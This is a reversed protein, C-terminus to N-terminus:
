FVGELTYDNAGGVIESIADMTPDVQDDNAGKPFKSFELLYDSLWEAQRPLFVSGAEITPTVDHARSVKDTGRNIGKIPIHEKKLTQILATGSSADEVKFARLASPGASKASHKKWFARAQVLLEPAEWKGRIQDILYASNERTYGWCQLVSFDNQEKTKSATDGFIIRHSLVPLTDYFKWWDSKFLGGGRPTPRQQLQGATGYTGLTRKLEKIQDQGFREPFMLEGEETRPDVWGIATRCRFKPEFEMPIRLHVYDLGMSLIVGTTDLENLRQMIVVIASKESNIRHPLTETFSLRAKELEAPSNADFASIPDDLMVRDGRSGTMGTFAMAERFGTSTNEFKNKANQDAMLAVPWREQYWASAILIRCKRNDRIALTASHATGLFRHFLLGKPGWEWAPWIVGVLMSKMTGPPVNMLLRPIEGATVAELHECIADLAWGWKLDTAPELVHWAMKAFEALSEKAVARELNRVDAKTLRM